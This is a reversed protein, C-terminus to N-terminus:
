PVVVTSFVGFSVERGGSTSAPASMLSAGVAVAGSREGSVEFSGGGGCMTLLDTSAGVVSGDDLVVADPVDGDVDIFGDPREADLMGGDAMSGDTGGGDSGVSGDAAQKFRDFDSILSCGASAVSALIAVLVILRSTISAAM